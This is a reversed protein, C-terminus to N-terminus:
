SKLKSILIKKRQFDSSQFAMSLTLINVQKIKFSYKIKMELIITVCKPWMM